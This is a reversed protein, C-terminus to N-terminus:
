EGVPAFLRRLRLALVFAAISGWTTIGAGQIWTSTWGSHNMHWIAFCVFFLSGALATVLIIISNKLVSRTRSSPLLGRRRDLWRGIVFWQGVVFAALYFNSIVEHWQTRSPHDFGDTVLEFLLGGPLAAIAAPINLAIAFEISRPPPGDWAGPEVGEEQQRGVSYLAATLM